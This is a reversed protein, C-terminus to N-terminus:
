QFLGEVVKRFHLTTSLRGSEFPVAEGTDTKIDIEISDFRHKSVPVYRAPNFIRHVNEGNGGTADVIRLLPAMTDGVPVNELADCYVYLGHIGAQIDTTSTGGHTREITGRNSLTLVNRLGLISALQSEFTFSMGPQLTVNFKRKIPNHKFRPWTEKNLRTYTKTGTADIFPFTIQSLADGVSRNMEDVLAEVSAYYGYQILISTTYDATVVEPKGSSPPYKPIYDACKSCDFILRSGPKPITFWTKTFMMEVLACEWPGGTLELTKQLRTTYKTM